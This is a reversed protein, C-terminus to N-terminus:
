LIIYMYIIRSEVSVIPVFDFTYYVLVNKLKGRYTRLDIQKAQGPRRNEDTAVHM